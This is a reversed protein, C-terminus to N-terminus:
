RSISSAMKEIIRNITNLMASASKYFEEFVFLFRRLEEKQEDNLNEASTIAETITRQTNGVTALDTSGRNDIVWQTIVNDNPDNINGLDIGSPFTDLLITLREHLTGDGTQGLAALDSIHDQLDQKIRIFDDQSSATLGQIGATLPDNDYVPTLPDDFFDEANNGGAGTKYDSIVAEVSDYDTGGEVYATPNTPPLREEPALRNHFEQVKELTELVEKNIQIAERLGTLKEFILDNGTKVYEFEILAQLSRTSDFADAALKMVTSVGVDSLSIWNLMDTNTGSPIVSAANLTKILEDVARGMELTMYFTKPQQTTGNLFATPTTTYTTASPTGSLLNITGGDVFIGNQALNELEQIATQLTQVDGSGTSFITAIPSLLIGYINAVDTHTYEGHVPVTVGNVNISTVASM